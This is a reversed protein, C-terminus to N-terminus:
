RPRSDTSFVMLISLVTAGFSMSRIASKKVKKMPINNQKWHRWAVVLSAVKIMSIEVFTLLNTNYEGEENLTAFGPILSSEDVRVFSNYFSEENQQVYVIEGNNNMAVSFSQDGSVTFPVVDYNTASYCSASVCLATLTFVQKLNM